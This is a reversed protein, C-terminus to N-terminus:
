SPAVMCAEVGPAGRQKRPTRMGVISHGNERKRCSQEVFLVIMEPEESQGATWDQGRSFLGISLLTVPGAWVEFVGASPMLVRM